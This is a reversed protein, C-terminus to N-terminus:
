ESDSKNDDEGEELGSEIVIEDTEELVESEDIKIQPDFDMYICWGKKKILVARAPNSGAICSDFDQAKVAQRFPQHRQAKPNDHNSLQGSM